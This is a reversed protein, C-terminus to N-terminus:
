RKLNTLKLFVDELTQSKMDIDIIEEESLAQRTLPDRFDKSSAFYQALTVISYPHGNLEVLHNSDIIDMTIPDLIANADAAAADLAVPPRPSWGLGYM